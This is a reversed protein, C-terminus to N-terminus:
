GFQRGQMKALCAAAADTTEFRATFHPGGPLGQRRDMDIKCKGFTECEEKVDLELDEWETDDFSAVEDASIMNQLLVSTKAPSAAAATGNSAGPVSSPGGGGNAQNASPLFDSLKPPPPLSAGEREPFADTAKVVDFNKPGISLSKLNDMYLATNDGHVRGM